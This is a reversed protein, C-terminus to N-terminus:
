GIPFFLSLRMNLRLPLWLSRGKKVQRFAGMVVLRTYMIPWRWPPSSCEKIAERGFTFSLKVTSYWCSVSQNKRKIDTNNVATCCIIGWFLTLYYYKNDWMIESSFFNLLLRTPHNHRLPKWPTHHDLQRNRSCDQLSSHPPQHIQKEDWKFPQQKEGHQGKFLAPFSVAAPKKQFSQYLPSWILLNDRSTVSVMRLIVLSPVVCSQLYWSTPIRQPWTPLQSVFGVINMVNYGKSHNRKTELWRLGM